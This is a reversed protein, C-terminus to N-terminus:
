WWIASRPGAARPSSKRRGPLTLQQAQPWYASLVNDCGIIGIRLPNM